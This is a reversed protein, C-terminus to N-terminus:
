NKLLPCQHRERLIAKNAETMDVCIRVADTDKKPVAVTPSVWPTPKGNMKEIIDQHLLNQTEQEVKGRRYFPTRRHKQAVPPISVDIHLKVSIDKLKGIGEFLKPYKAAPDNVKHIIKVLNLAKATPYGILSGHNGKTVYFRHCQLQTKTEM